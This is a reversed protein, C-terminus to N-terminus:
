SQDRVRTRFRRRAAAQSLTGACHAPVDESRARQSAHRVAARGRRGSDAADDANRSRSDRLYRVVRTRTRFIERSRETMILDVYRQRYRLETDAVGHWKDPLPRLSKALLRLKEVRVSLENTRTRFLQGEAGLTDGIDYNKFAQYAEGLASDQLFLQIQGSRDAIRAFSAKGMVSRLMMRGGVRVRVPNAEFWASDRDAYTALLQAALADRRFDNPFAVGQERLKALKARREAILHNDADDDNV